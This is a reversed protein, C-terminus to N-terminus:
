PVPELRLSAAPEQRTGLVKARLALAPREVGLHLILAALALIGFLALEYLSPRRDHLAALAPSFRQVAPPVLQHLLYLPYTLESAFTIVAAVLLPSTRPLRLRSLFPVLCGILLNFLSIGAVEYWWAREDALVVLTVAAATAVLALPVRRRELWAWAQERGALVALGAGVLLGDFRAQPQMDINQWSMVPALSARWTAPLLLLALAAWAWWRWRLRRLLLVLVPLALYFGEETVLSWSVPYLNPPFLTQLFLGHKLIVDWGRVSGVVAALGLAIWYPPLTRFWRRVWFRTVFGSGAEGRSWARLAQGTLLWGSLVFFVDVALYGHDTVLRPLRGGGLHRAVDAHYAIITVSAAVRLFDLGVVRPESYHKVVRGVTRAVTARGQSDPDQHDAPGAAPSASLMNTGHTM